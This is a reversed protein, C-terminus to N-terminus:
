GAGRVIPSERTALRHMSDGLRMGREFACRGCLGSYEVPVVVNGNDYVGGCRCVAASVTPLHHHTPPPVADHVGVIPMTM